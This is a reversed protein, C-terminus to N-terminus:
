HNTVDCVSNVRQENPAKVFVISFDQHELRIKQKIRQKTGVLGVQSHCSKETLLHLSRGCSALKLELLEKHADFREDVVHKGTLQRVKGGQAGAKVLKVIGVRFSVM